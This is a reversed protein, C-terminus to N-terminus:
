FGTSLVQFTAVLLWNDESAQLLHLARNTNHVWAIAADFAALAILAATVPKTMPPLMLTRTLPRNGISLIGM